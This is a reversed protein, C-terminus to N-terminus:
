PPQGMIREPRLVHSSVPSSSVVGPDIIYLQFPSWRGPLVGILFLLSMGSVEGIVRM